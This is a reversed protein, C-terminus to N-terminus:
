YGGEDHSGMDYGMDGGHGYSDGGGHGYSDHKKCDPNMILIDGKKKDSKLLLKPGCGGDGGMVIIDGKKGGAEAVSALCLAAVLVVAFLCLKTPNM